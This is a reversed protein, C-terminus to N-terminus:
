LPHPSPIRFPSSTMQRKKAVQQGREDAFFYKGMGLKGVIIRHQNLSWSHFSPMFYFPSISYPITKFGNRM